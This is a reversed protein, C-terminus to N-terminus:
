ASLEQPQKKYQDAAAEKRFRGTGNRCVLNFLQHFPRPHPNQLFAVRRGGCVLGRLGGKWQLAKGRFLATACFLNETAASLIASQWSQLIGDVLWEIPVKQFM